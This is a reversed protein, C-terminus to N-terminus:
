MDACGGPAEREGSGRHSTIPAPQNRSQQEEKKGLSLTPVHSPVSSISPSKRKKLPQEPSSSLSMALTEICARVSRVLRGLIASIPREIASRIGARRSLPTLAPAVRGHCRFIHVTLLTQGAIGCGTIPNEALWQCIFPNARAPWVLNM